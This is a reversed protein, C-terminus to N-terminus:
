ALAGEDEWFYLIIDLLNCAFRKEKGRWQGIVGADLMVSEVLEGNPWDVDKILAKLTVLISEAAWQAIAISAYLVLYLVGFLRADGNLICPGWCFLQGTSGVSCHQPSLHLPLIHM